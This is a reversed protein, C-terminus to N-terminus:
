VPNLFINVRELNLNDLMKNLNLQGVHMETREALLSNAMFDKAKSTKRQYDSKSLLTTLLIENTILVDHSKIMIM